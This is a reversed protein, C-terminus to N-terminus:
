RAPSRDVPMRSSKSLLSTEDVDSLVKASPSVDGDNMRHMRSVPVETNACGSSEETASPRSLAFRGRLCRVASQKRERAGGPSRKLKIVDAGDGGERMVREVNKIM